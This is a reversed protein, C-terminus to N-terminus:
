SQLTVLRYLPEEFVRCIVSSTQHDTKGRRPNATNWVQWRSQRSAGCTNLSSLMMEPYRWGLLEASSQIRLLKWIFLSVILMQVWKRGVHHTKHETDKWWVQVLRTKNMMLPLPLTFMQWRELQTFMVSNRLIVSLWLNLSTIKFIRMTSSLFLCTSAVDAFNVLDSGFYM